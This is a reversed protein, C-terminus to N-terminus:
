DDGGDKLRFMSCYINSDQIDVHFIEGKQEKLPDCIFEHDPDYLYHICDDCTDWDIYGHNYAM